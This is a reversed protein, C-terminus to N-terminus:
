LNFDVPKIVGATALDPHRSGPADEVPFAPLPFGDLSALRVGDLLVPEVLDGEFGHRRAAQAEFNRHLRVPRGADLLPFHLSWLACRPACAELTSLTHLAPVCSPHAGLSSAIFSFLMLNERTASVHKHPNRPSVIKHQERGPPAEVLTDKTVLLAASKQVIARFPHSCASRSSASTSNSNLIGDSPVGASCLRITSSRSALPMPPMAM